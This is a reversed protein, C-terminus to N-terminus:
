PYTKLKVKVSDLINSVCGREYIMLSRSGSNSIEVPLVTASTWKSYVKCVGIGEKFALGRDIALNHVVTSLRPCLPFVSLFLIVRM